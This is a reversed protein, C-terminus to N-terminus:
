GVRASKPRSTSGTGAELTLKPTFFEFEAKADKLNERSLIMGM